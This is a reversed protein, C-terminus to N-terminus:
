GLDRSRPISVTRQTSPGQPAVCTSRWATSTVTCRTSTRACFFCRLACRNKDGKFFYDDLTKSRREQTMKHQTGKKGGRGRSGEQEKPVRLARKKGEGEFSGGRRGAGRGM